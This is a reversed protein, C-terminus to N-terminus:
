GKWHVRQWQALLLAQDRAEFTTHLLRKGTDDGHPATRCLTFMVLGWRRDYHVGHVGKAVDGTARRISPEGLAKGQLKPGLGTGNRKM